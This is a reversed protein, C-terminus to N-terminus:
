LKVTNGRHEITSREKTRREELQLYNQYMYTIIIVHQKQKMADRLAM